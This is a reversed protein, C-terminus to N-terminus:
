QGHWPGNVGMAFDRCEAQTKPITPWTTDTRGQPGLATLLTGDPLTTATSGDSWTCEATPSIRFDGAGPDGMWFLAAQADTLYASNLEYGTESQLTALSTYQRFVGDSNRKAKCTLDRSGEHYYLNQDMSGTPSNVRLEWTSHLSSTNDQWFICKNLNTTITDSSTSWQKRGGPNYLLHNQLTISTGSLTQIVAQTGAGTCIWACNTWTTVGVYRYYLFAVSEDRIRIISDDVTCTGDTRIAFGVDEGYFNTITANHLSFATCNYSFCDKFVNDVYPNVTAGHSYFATGNDYDGVKVCGCNEYSWTFPGDEDTYNVFPVEGGAHFFWDVAVVQKMSGSEQLVNHQHGLELTTNELTTSHRMKVSGDKHLQHRTFVNKVTTGDLVDVAFQRYNTEYVKGNSNPDSSDSPHFYLNTPGTGAAIDAAFFSGPTSGCLSLSTVAELPLGDEVVTLIGNGSDYEHAWSKYWADSVTGHETYSGAMVDAANIIPFDGAGYSDLNLGSAGPQFTERITTGRKLMVTASPNSDSGWQTVAKSFTAWPAADSLGDNSDSGSVPDVYYLLRSVGLGLNDTLSRVPTRTLTRTLNRSLNNM